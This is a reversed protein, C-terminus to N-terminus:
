QRCSTYGDQQLRQGSHKHCAPCSRMPGRVAGEGSSPKLLCHFGPDRLGVLAVRPEEIRIRDVRLAAKGEHLGDSAEASRCWSISIQQLKPVGGFSCTLRTRRVGSAWTTLASPPASPPAPGEPGDEFVVADFLGFSFHDVSWAPFSVSPLGHVHSGPACFVDVAVKPSRQMKRKNVANM